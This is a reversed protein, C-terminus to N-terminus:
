TKVGEVYISERARDPRDLALNPKQSKNFCSPSPKFGAQKLIYLLTETDYAFLHRGRERFVRNVVEMKTNYKETNRIHHMVELGGDRFYAKLYAPVNPVVLRVLGGKILVRFCESLFHPVEEYFDLHELFHECFIMEVSQNPLPIKKRVDFIVTVNKGKYCDINIWGPQGYNGSAINVKYPKSFKNLINLWQRHTFPSLLRVCFLKLEAYVLILSHYPMVKLLLSKWLARKKERSLDVM